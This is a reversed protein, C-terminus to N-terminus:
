LALVSASGGLEITVEEAAGADSSTCTRTGSVTGSLSIAYGGSHTGGDCYGIFEITGTPPARRDIQTICDGVRAFVDIVEVMTTDALSVPGKGLEAPQPLCFTIHVGTETPATQVGDLTLSVGGGPVNCDNNPSSNFQGFGVTDSGIQGTVGNAPADGPGCDDSGCGTAVALAVCSLAMMVLPALARQDRVGIGNCRATPKGKVNSNRASRLSIRM